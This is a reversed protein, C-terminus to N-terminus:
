WEYKDLTGILQCSLIHKNFLHIYISCALPSEYFKLDNLYIHM